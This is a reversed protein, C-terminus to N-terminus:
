VRQVSGSVSSTRPAGRALIVDLDFFCQPVIPAAVVAKAEIWGVIGQVSIGACRKQVIRVVYDIAEALPKRFEKLARKITRNQEEFASHFTQKKPSKAERKVETKREPQPTVPLEPLTLQAVEKGASKKAWYGRPPVPVQRRACIKALARDSVHFDRAVDTMPKAWVLSYLEERTLRLHDKPTMM